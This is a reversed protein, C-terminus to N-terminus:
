LRPVGPPFPAADPATLTGAPIHGPVGVRPRPVPLLPLTRRATRPPAPPHDAYRPPGAALADGPDSLLRARSWAAMASSWSATQSFRASSKRGTPPSSRPSRSAASFHGSRARSADPSRQISTLPSSTSCCWIPARPSCFLSALGNGNVLRSNTLVHAGSCPTVSVSRMSSNWRPVADGTAAVIRQLLPERGWAPEVEGPLFAAATTNVPLEIRGGDPTFRPSRKGSAAGWLLRLLTTKGTSFAGVLVILEGPEITLDLRRLVVTEIVRREVGFARLVAQLEPALHHLDLTRRYVKRVHHFRIPAALSEATRLAPRYLQGRHQRAVPDTAIFQEIRTQADPTLGFFLVPRGSATDWLYRFGAREFFPNYRAMMAVTEVLVKPRRREPIRRESIWRLATSVLAHGLGAGRYDPHIVVRAIRAAQTDCQALAQEEALAWREDLDRYPEQELLLRVHREPWYTPELWDAPFVLRRIHRVLTGDPLRRHMIPLPPDIRVYGVIAPEYSQRDLLEAVLFRSARTSGLIESFRMPRHCAPCLPRTNADLISGDEPCTWRAVKEHESAYHSQELEVIALFDTERAAERFLLRYTALPAGTLPSRREYRAEEQWLPWVPLLGHEVPRWLQFDQFDPPDSADSALALLVREDPQFWQAVSGTMPLVLEHTGDSVALRGFWRYRWREIIPAVVRVEGPIM